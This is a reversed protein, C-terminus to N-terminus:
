CEAGVGSRLQWCLWVGALWAGLKCCLKHALRLLLLLLLLLLWVCCCVHVCCSCVLATVFHV